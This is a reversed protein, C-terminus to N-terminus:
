SALNWGTTDISFAKVFEKAGTTQNTNLNKMFTAESMKGSGTVWMEFDKNILGSCVSTYGTPWTASYSVKPFKM